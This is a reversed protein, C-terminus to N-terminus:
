GGQRTAQTQEQRRLLDDHYFKMLWDAFRPSLSAALVLFKGGPTFVVQPVRRGTIAVIKRAVKQPDMMTRLRVFSSQYGESSTRGRVNGFFETRTLGPCVLTVNVNYSRMEVRMSETLGCVAFKSASYAGNFPSGRKGIVSSVNVIRGGGQRIMVGAAAKCGYFLGHFNVDFIHRMDESGVEHVRGYHGFGANNVMVDLGGFAEVASRVLNQVQEEVAVDTVVALAEGGAKRCQDAVEELHEKRRAGLVVAWGRRAYALATAKGIGSSAGTIVATQKRNMCVDHGGRATRVVM